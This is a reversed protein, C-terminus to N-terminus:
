LGVSHFAEWLSKIEADIRTTIEQFGDLRTSLDSLSEQNDLACEALAGRKGMADREGEDMRQKMDDLGKTMEAKEEEVQCRLDDMKERAQSGGEDMRQKLDDLGGTVEAKWEKVQHKLDELWELMATKRQEEALTMRLNMEVKLDEMANRLDNMGNREDLEDDPMRRGMEAKMEGKVEEVGRRLDNVEKSREEMRARRAVDTKLGEVEDKVRDVESALGDVDAKPYDATRGVEARGEEQQRMVADVREKGDDRKVVEAHHAKSMGGVRGIREEEMEKSYEEVVEDLFQRGSLSLDDQIVCGEGASFGDFKEETEMRGCGEEKRMEEEQVMRGELKSSLGNRLEKWEDAETPKVQRGDQVEQRVAQLLLLMESMRTTMEAKLDTVQESLNHLKTEQVASEAMMKCISVYLNRIVLYVSSAQSSVFSVSRLKLKHVTAKATLGHTHVWARVHTHSLGLSWLVLVVTSWALYVHILLIYINVVPPMLKSLGAPLSSLYLFGSQAVTEDMNEVKGFGSAPRGQEQRASGQQVEQYDNYDNRYRGFASVATVAALLAIATVLLRATGAM